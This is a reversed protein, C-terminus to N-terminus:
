GITVKSSGKFIKGTLQVPPVLSGGTLAALMSSVTSIWQWFAPDDAALSMVPDTERAASLGGQLISVTNGETEIAGTGNLKIKASGSHIVIDKNSKGLIEIDGTERCIICSGNETYIAVDNEKLAPGGNYDIVPLLEFSDFNGGACLVFVSGKKAKAKFGYPHAIKKELVRRSATEVQIKEDDYRKKLEGTTFLNRIRASLKESFNM